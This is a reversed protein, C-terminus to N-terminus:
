GTENSRTTARTNMDLHIATVAAGPVVAGSADTVLGILRGRPDQACACAVIVFAGILLARIKAPM